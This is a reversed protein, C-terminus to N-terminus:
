EGLIIDVIKQPEHIVFPAGLSMIFEEDRFGWGVMIVDTGSNRATALDVDSDGIYVGEKKELVGECSAATGLNGGVSASDYSVTQVTEQNSSNNQCATICSFACAMIFLIEIKRKTEKVIRQRKIMNFLREFQVGTMPIM